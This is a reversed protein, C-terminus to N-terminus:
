SDQKRDFTSRLADRASATRAPDAERQYMPTDVAEAPDEGPVPLVEGTTPNIPEQSDPKPQAMHETLLLSGRVLAAESGKHYLHLGYNDGLGIACRRLAYSSAATMANGHAEGRDPHRSSGMHFEVFEAVPRGKYDRVRLRVGARYCVDWVDKNANSKAANEYLLTLDIVESDWNGVGFQRILEARVEEAPIYSLGQVKEIRDPRVPQLGREVQKRTLQGRDNMM